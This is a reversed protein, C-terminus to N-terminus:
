YTSYRVKSVSDYVELEQILKILEVKDRSALIYICRSDEVSYSILDDRELFGDIRGSSEVEVTPLESGESFSVQFFSKKFLKLYMVDFLKFGLLVLITVITLAILVELKAGATIGMTILLFFVVLEFTSKVPNRFRVISLAGVMGLSLAINGAIVATISYTILPLLVVTLTHAYTRIWHQGAFVLTQRVLVSCIVLSIIVFQPEPGNEM